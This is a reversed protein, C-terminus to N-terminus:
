TTPSMCVSLQLLPRTSCDRANADNGYPRRKEQGGRTQLAATVLSGQWQAEVARAGGLYLVGVTSVGPGPYLRTDSPDVGFSATDVVVCRGVGEGRICLSATM